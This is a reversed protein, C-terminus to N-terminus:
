NINPNWKIEASRIIDGVSAIIVVEDTINQKTSSVNNCRKEKSDATILINRPGFKIKRSDSMRYVIQNDRYSTYVLLLTHKTENLLIIGRSGEDDVYYLDDWRGSPRRVLLAILPYDATDYSTKVAAYLTGDSAVAINLHDDAMGDEWDIASQAAPIEDASWKHPEDGKKHLRFGFRKTIQNSWLLGIDGNPFATIVCIDDNKTGSVLTIAESWVQYPEDSWRVHMESEDDSALWMRGAGDMAITATEGASELPVPLPNPRNQWFRYKGSKKDYEVSVLISNVSKYLLIHTVGNISLVDAAANKLDNLHFSKSWQNGDLKWIDSGQGSSLVVWWNNDYYWLKSQPKQGTPDSFPIPRIDETIIIDRNERFKGNMKKSSSCSLIFLFILFLYKLSYM